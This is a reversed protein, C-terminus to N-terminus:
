TQAELNDLLERAQAITLKPHTADVKVGNDELVLRVDIRKVTIHTIM